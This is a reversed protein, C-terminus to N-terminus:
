ATHPREGQHERRLHDVLVLTTEYEGVHMGKSIHTHTVTPDLAQTQESAVPM